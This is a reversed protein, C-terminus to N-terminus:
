VVHFRTMGIVALIRKTRENFFNNKIVVLPIQIKAAM